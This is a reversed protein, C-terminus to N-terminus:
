DVILTQLSSSFLNINLSSFVKEACVLSYWSQEGFRVLTKPGDKKIQEFIVNKQTLSFIIKEHSINRHLFKQRFSLLLIRGVQQLRM